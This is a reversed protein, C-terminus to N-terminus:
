VNNNSGLFRRNEENNESGALGGGGGGDDARYNGRRFYSGFGFVDNGRDNLERTAVTRLGRGVRTANSLTNSAVGM